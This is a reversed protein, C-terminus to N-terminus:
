RLTGLLLTLFSHWSLTDLGALTSSHGFLTDLLFTTNLFLTRELTDSLLTLCSHRVLTDLLIRELIDCLLTWCTHRILIDLFRNKELTNFLTDLLFTGCPHRVLTDQLPTRRSNQFTPANPNTPEILNERGKRRNMWLMRSIKRMYICLQFQLNDECVNWLELQKPDTPM